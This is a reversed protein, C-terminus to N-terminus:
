TNTEMTDNVASNQVHVVNRRRFTFLKIVEERFRSGTLIYLIFNSTNNTYLMINVLAWWPDQQQVNRPVDQPIWYAEGIFYVCVPLTCIIFVFNLCVLLVSMNSQKAKSASRSESNSADKKVKRRSQVLKFVILVNGAALIVFPILSFKCLDIWTWVTFFFKAYEENVPACPRIITTNGEQTEVEGFGYLLNSNVLLSFVVISIVTVKASRKTCIKKSKYPILTAVLREVTILALTWVTWDSMVYMLWWHVKCIIPSIHRIDVEFAYKVWQRLLGIYLMSMDSAALGLLYTTSPHRNFRPKSLVIISIINGITGMIILIPAFVQWM